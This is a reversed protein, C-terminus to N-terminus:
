PYGIPYRITYVITTHYLLSRCAPYRNIADNNQGGKKEWQGVGREKCGGKCIANEEKAGLGRRQRTKDKKKMDM